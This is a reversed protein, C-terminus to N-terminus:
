QSEAAYKNEGCTPALNFIRWVIQPLNKRFKRWINKQRITAMRQPLQGGTTRKGSTLKLAKESRLFVGLNVQSIVHGQKAAMLYWHFADEAYRPDTGKDSLMKAVKYQLLPDGADADKKLMTLTWEWSPATKSDGVPRTNERSNPNAASAITRAVAPQNIIIQKPFGLSRFSVLKEHEHRVTDYLEDAGGLAVALRSYSAGYMNTKQRPASPSTVIVPVTWAGVAIPSSLERRLFELEAGGGAMVIALKGTTHKLGSLWNSVGSVNSNILSQLESRVTKAMTRIEPANELQDLTLTIGHPQIIKDKFLSEKLFRIRSQIDIRDTASIAKAKELCLRLVVRDIENGALFVSRTEGLPILSQNKSSSADPILSQFLGIDTTGAGVDIIACLRRVNSDDPLLEVAAAIPEVVDAHSPLTENTSNATYSRLIETTTVGWDGLGAMEAAVLGLELLARNAAVSVDNPWVPHAIRIDSSRIQGSGKWGGEIAAFLGYALLGAILDWRTVDSSPIVPIRLKSPEKLWLKPSAEYFLPRPSRLRAEYAREGFRVTKGDADLCVESRMSAGDISKSDTLRGIELVQRRGSIERKAIRISSTGFDVCLTESSM